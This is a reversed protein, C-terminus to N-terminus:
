SLGRYILRLYKHEIEFPDRSSLPSTREKQTWGSEVLAAKIEAELQQAGGFDQDAANYYRYFVNQPLYAVVMREEHAWEHTRRMLSEETVLGFEIVPANKPARPLSRKVYFRPAVPRHGDIGHAPRMETVEETIELSGLFDQHNNSYVLTPSLM